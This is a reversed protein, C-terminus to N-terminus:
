KLDAIMQRLRDIEQPSFHRSGLYASLFLESSNDFLKGMLDSFAQKQVQERTILARCLFKPELREIAGKKILKNIVTYTTNRNWGTREELRKVLEAATLNGERWLVDMVKLESDFLTVQM